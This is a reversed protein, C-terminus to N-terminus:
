LRGTKDHDVAELSSRACSRPGALDFRLPIELPIEWQIKPRDRLHAEAPEHVWYWHKHTHAHIKHKEFSFSDRADQRKRM